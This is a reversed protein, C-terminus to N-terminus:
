QRRTDGPNRKQYETIFNAHVFMMATRGATQRTFQVVTEADWLTQLRALRERRDIHQFVRTFESQSLGNAGGALVVEAMRSVAHGEKSMATPLLAFITKELQRAAYVAREWACRTVRLSQSHSAEYVVALKLVHQRHRNFYASALAASCPQANFRAKTARYWSDYELLIAGLQAPGQLKAIRQFTKALPDVLTHDPEPPTPIVKEAAAPRVILWRPMFGGGSDEEVLNKFFWDESSTALINLRPALPFRIPPTDRNKKGTQRYTIAEPPHMNDYGDTIWEKVGAFRSENLLKLKVSLEGWMYLGSPHESQDQYFAEPSGWTSSRLLDALGAAKLIDRAFNLLSSRGVGSGSLLIQWLDLTYTNAGHPITVGNRNLIAAILQQAVAEHMATPAEVVDAYQVYWDLFDPQDDAPDV